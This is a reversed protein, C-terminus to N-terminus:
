FSSWWRLFFFFLQGAIQLFYAVEVLHSHILIVAPSPDRRM